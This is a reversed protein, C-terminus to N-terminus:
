LDEFLKGTSSQDVYEELDVVRCKRHFIVLSNFTVYNMTAGVEDFVFVMIVFM